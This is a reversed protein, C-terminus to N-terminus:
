RCNYINEKKDIGDESVIQPNFTNLSTSSSFRESISKRINDFTEFLSARLKGIEWLSSISRSTAQPKQPNSSNLLKQNRNNKFKNLINSLFSKKDSIEIEYDQLNTSPEEINDQEIKKDNM